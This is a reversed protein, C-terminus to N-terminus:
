IKPTGTSNRVVLKPTVKLHGEKLKGAIIDLLLAVSLADQEKLCTDVTTLPVPYSAIDLRDSYGVVSLDSPIQLGMEMAERMLGLAQMEEACIVATPASASSLIRRAYERGSEAGWPAYELLGDAPAVGYASMAANAGALFEDIFSKASKPGLLLGIGRHGLALLHEAALQAGKAVDVMVYPTELSPIGLVAFPLGKGKLLAIDEPCPMFRLLLGSLEGSKVVKELYSKAGEIRGDPCVFTRLDVSRLNCERTIIQTEFAVAHYTLSASDDFALGLHITDSPLSDTVFTGKGQIRKLLGEHALMGVAERVTIHSVEYAAALENQSPFTGGPPIEGNMIKERLLKQLEECKSPRKLSIREM